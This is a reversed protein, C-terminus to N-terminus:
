IYISPLETPRALCPGTDTNIIYLFHNSLITITSYILCHKIVYSFYHFYFVIIELYTFTNKLDM